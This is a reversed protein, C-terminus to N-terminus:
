RRTQTRHRHERTSVSAHPSRPTDAWGFSTWLEVHHVVCAPPLCSKPRQDCGGAHHHCLGHHLGDHGHLPRHLGRRRSPHHGRRPPPRPPSRANHSTALTHEHPTRPSVMEAATVAVTQHHRCHWTGADAPSAVCEDHVPEGVPEDHRAQRGARMKTARVSTAPRPTSGSQNTRGTPLSSGPGPQPRRGPLQGPHSPGRCPAGPPEM